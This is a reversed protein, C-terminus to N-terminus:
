ALEEQIVVEIIEETYKAFSPMSKLSKIIDKISIGMQCYLKIIKIMEFKDNDTVELLSVEDAKPIYVLTNIPCFEQVLKLYNDLLSLVDDDVSRRIEQLFPNEKYITFYSRRNRTTQSWLLDFDARIRTSSDIHRKPGGRHYYVKQSLDRAKDAWRRLMDICEQPPRAVSKKVDIQWDFDSDEGIDVKIRALKSAEEKPFLSLWSSVTLLRKNRYIYFGQQEYWGNPGGAEKYQEKTIKSHHPLIYGEIALLRGDILQNESGMEHTYQLKTCFPDWPHLSNGNIRMHVRSNGELFRHFVMQLHKELLNIKHFFKKQQKLTFPAQVIRDLNEILIVTGTAGRIHGLLTESEIYPRKLLQWENSLQVLELDWCRSNVEDNKKTLVTLRQGLSFSATKLGMGFRGLEKVGRKVLPNKSGLRMAAILEKETMGKGDDEIRIYSRNENWQMEIFIENAKADISNDILDAVATELSYGISRLSQIVPAADPTVIEHNDDPQIINKDQVM